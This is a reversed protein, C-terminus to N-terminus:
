LKRSLLLAAESNDRYYNPRIGQPKFGLSQYLTQAAINSQRVELHAETVANRQAFNLVETLLKRAYGLRRCDPSIALNLIHLEDAVLYNLCYGLLKGPVILGLRLSVDKDFEATILSASWPVRYCKNELECVESIFSRDLFVIRPELGGEANVKYPYLERVQSGAQEPQPKPFKYTAIAM